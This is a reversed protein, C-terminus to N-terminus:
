RSANVSALLVGSRNIPVGPDVKEPLLTWTPWTATSSTTLAESFWVRGQNSLAVLMGRQLSNWAADLVHFPKSLFLNQPGARSILKICEYFTLFSFNVGLSKL